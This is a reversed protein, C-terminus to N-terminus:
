GVRFALCELGRAHVVRIWAALDGMATDFLFGLRVLLQRITEPHELDGWGGADASLIFRTAWNARRGRTPHRLRPV